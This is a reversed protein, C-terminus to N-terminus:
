TQPRHKGHDMADNHCPQCYYQGGGGCVFMAVSCCFMCKFDLFENGHQECVRKDIGMEERACRPCRMQEATMTSEVQLAEACDQMGGFYRAKCKGCEYFACKKMCYDGLRGYFESTYDDIAGDQHLGEKMGEEVAKEMIEEKLYIEQQLLDGIVPM